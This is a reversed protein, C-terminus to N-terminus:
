IRTSPTSPPLHRRVQEELAGEAPALPIVKGGRSRMLERRALLSLISDEEFATLM